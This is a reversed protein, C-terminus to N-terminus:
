QGERRLRAEWFLNLSPQLLGSEATSGLGKRLARLTVANGGQRNKWWRYFSLAGDSPPRSPTM